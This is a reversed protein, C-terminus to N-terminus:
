SPAWLAAKAAAAAAAAATSKCVQMASVPHCNPLREERPQTETVFPVNRFVTREIRLWDCHLAQKADTGVLSGCFRKIFHGFGHISSTRVDVCFHFCDVM